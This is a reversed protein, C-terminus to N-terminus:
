SPSRRACRRSTSQNRHGIGDIMIRGDDPDYFRQLLALITSKGGGSPGVFATTKGPEGVLCLDDLVKEHPAIASPSM